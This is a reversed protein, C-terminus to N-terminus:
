DHNTGLQKLAQKVKEKTTDVDKEVAAVASRAQQKSYGLGVLAEVADSSEARGQASEETSIDGFSDRLELVVKEATKQGIGSVKTLYSTDESAIAAAITGADAVSLIGLASKPGVGSVGILHEFLRRQEHSSFGFLTLSDERVSLFTLLTIQTKMQAEAIVQPPALVSYGVGGVDIILEDESIVEPKGTLQAIM